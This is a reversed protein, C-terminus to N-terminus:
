SGRYKRLNSKIGLKLDLINQEVERLSQLREEGEFNDYSNVIRNLITHIKTDFQCYSYEFSKLEVESLLSQAFDVNVRYYEKSRWFADLYKGKAENHDQYYCPANSPFNEDKFVGWYREVAGICEFAIQELENFAKFRQTYTFQKKWTSLASIAIIVAFLTGIGSVISFVKSLADLTMSDTDFSIGFIIGVALLSFCSFWIIRDSM